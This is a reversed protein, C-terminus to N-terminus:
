PLPPRVNRWPRVREFARGAALVRADDLERGVLQISVPMGEGDRGAPLALAPLGTISFGCLFHIMVALADYEDGGLQIAQFDIPPAAIACTPTLLLDVDHSLVHALQKRLAQRGRSARIFSTAPISRGGALLREVDPGYRLSGGKFWTEAWLLHQEATEAPVIANNIESAKALLPVSVEKVEAGLDLFAEKADALARAAGPAIPISMLERPLGVRLGEVGVELGRIFDPAPGPLTKPDEADPGAIEGLIIALDEVSRALPGVHDATYSQAVVDAASVLGYTPKLGAIGCFAAPIRISGATDSGISAPALAAAVAAGSGGSSGGAIRTGSWPNRTKAHVNRTTVGFAFEHTNVKGLFIAGADILRRAVTATKEPIWDSLIQSGATTRVGEMAIIDKLCFPVGHLRGRLQGKARERDRAAAQVRAIESTVTVYAEILPDVAAIRSLFAETVRESTLEGAAIARGLEGATLWVLDEDKM